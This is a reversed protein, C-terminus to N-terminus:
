FCILLIVNKTLMLNSFMCMSKNVNFTISHRRSYDDCQVLLQQLGASSMSMICLDDAYLMIIISLFKGM